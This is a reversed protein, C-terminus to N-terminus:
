EDKKYLYVITGDPLTERNYIINNPKFDIMRCIPLNHFKCYDLINLYKRSYAGSKVFLIINYKSSNEILFRRKSEKMYIKSGFITHESLNEFFDETIIIFDKNLYIERLFDGSNNCHLYKRFRRDRIEDLTDCKFMIIIDLITIFGFILFIFISNFNEM